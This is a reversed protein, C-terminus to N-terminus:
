YRAINQSLLRRLQCGLSSQNTSLYTISAFITQILSINSRIKSLLVFLLFSPFPLYSSGLNLVVVMIRSPLWRLFHWCCPHTILNDSGTGSVRFSSDCFYFPPSSSGGQLLLHILFASDLGSPVCFCFNSSSSSDGWFYISVPFPSDLWCLELFTHGAADTSCWPLALSFVLTLSNEAPFTVVLLELIANKCLRQLIGFNRENTSKTSM